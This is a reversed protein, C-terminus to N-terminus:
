GPWRSVSTLCNRQVLISAPRRFFYKQFSVVSGREHPATKQRQSRAKLREESDYCLPLSSLRARSLAIADAIMVLGMRTGAVLVRLESRAGIQISRISAAVGM